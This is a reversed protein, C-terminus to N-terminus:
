GGRVEANRAVLPELTAWCRTYSYKTAMVIMLYSKILKIGHTHEVHTISAQVPCLQGGIHNPRRRIDTSIQVQHM